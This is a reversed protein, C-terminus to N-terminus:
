SELKHAPIAGQRIVRWVGRVYVAVTSVPKPKLRGGDVIVELGRRVLQRKVQICSYAAKTGALNASTATLPRGFVGCLKQLWADGPVRVGVRGRLGVVQRPFKQKPKLLLTLPGPWFKEAVDLEPRTLYFYRRVMTLNAAVLAMPKGPERGKIRVVRALAEPRRAGALLGYATETPVAVVVNKRLLNRLELIRRTSKPYIRLAM